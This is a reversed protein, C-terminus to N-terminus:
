TFGSRCGLDQGGKRFCPSLTVRRLDLFSATVVLITTINNKEPRRRRILYSMFIAFADQM